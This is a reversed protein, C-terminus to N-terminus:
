SKKELLRRLVTEAADQEAARRSGGRGEVRIPEPEDITCSVDFIKAHDEGYSDTLEYIPLPLGRGQLWEQLRTKADKSSRKIEAVRPTFLRRVVQRCADYGDDFYVAAVLAEFADALISDRRFGGSKLEGPGLKLDDGLELERGIVALAQGNVLQARLRSLEGESAHPHAEFLLEAVLAGLLADGLFEMRENNPKGASRHTLALTALGPDRFRYPFEM